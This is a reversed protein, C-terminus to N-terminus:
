RWTAPRTREGAGGNSRLASTRRASRGRYRGCRPRGTAFETGGHTRRERHDPNSPDAARAARQATRPAIRRLLAQEGGAPGRRHVLCGRTLALVAHRPCVGSRRSRRREADVTHRGCRPCRAPAPDNRAGLSILPPLRPQIRGCPHRILLDAAPARTVSTGPRITMRAAPATNGGVPWHHYINVM